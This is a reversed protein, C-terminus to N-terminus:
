VSQARRLAAVLYAATACLFVNILFHAPVVLRLLNNLWGFILLYGTALVLPLAVYLFRQDRWALLSVLGLVVFITKVNLWVGLERSFYGMRRKFNALLLGPSERVVSLYRRTLCRDTEFGM